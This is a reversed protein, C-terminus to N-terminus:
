FCVALITILTILLVSKLLFIALAKTYREPEVSKLHKHLGWLVGYGDIIPDICHKWVLSTLLWNRM